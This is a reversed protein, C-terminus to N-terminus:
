AKNTHNLLRLGTQSTPSCFHLSLIIGNREGMCLMKDEQWKTFFGLGNKHLEQVILVESDSNSEM